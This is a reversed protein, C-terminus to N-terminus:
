RSLEPSTIQLIFVGRRWLFTVHRFCDVENRAAVGKQRYFGEMKSLDKFSRAALHSAALTM